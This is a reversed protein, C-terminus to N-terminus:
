DDREAAIGEIKIAVDCLLKVARVIDQNMEGGSRIPFGLAVLVAALQAAWSTKVPSGTEAATSPSTGKAPDADPLEDALFRFDAASPPPCQVIWGRTVLSRAVPPYAAATRREAKTVPAGNISSLRPAVILAALRFNEVQAVPTNVLSIASLVPQRELGALIEIRSDDAIIVKLNPQAPLTRLSTLPCRKLRLEVLAKQTGLKALGDSTYRVCGSFDL